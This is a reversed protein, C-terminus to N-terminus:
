GPPLPSPLQFEFALTPEWAQACGECCHTLNEPVGPLVLAPTAGEWSGKQGSDPIHGPCLPSPPGSGKWLSTM